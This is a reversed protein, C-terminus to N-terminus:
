LGITPDTRARFTAGLAVTFGNRIFIQHGVLVDLDGSSGVILNNGLTAAVCAEHVVTTTITRNDDTVREDAFTCNNASFSNWGIDEMLDDTVLLKETDTASHQMLETDVGFGDVDTDWHAVSSGPELDAPAYMEVHGGSTGSALGGIDGLVAAGTWHLDNTDEASTAREGNTMSGDSWHEGTSHDELRHGYIDPFGNLLEGTSLNALPLFGLGHAIEHLVTTYFSVTGAPASGLAYYWTNSGLCNISADIRSNFEAGIDSSGGAIDSGFLRNAVAIVYWTEVIPHPSAGSNFRIADEPGAAGLVASTDNCPLISTNNTMEANVTITVPSQVRVAWFDMAKEFAWRRQEGLTTGPNGDQQSEALPAGNDNFGEDAGDIYNVSFNAAICVAPGILLATAVSRLLKRTM